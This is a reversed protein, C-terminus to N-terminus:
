FSLNTKILYGTNSSYVRHSSYAAFLDIELPLLYFFDLKIRVGGFGSVISPKPETVYSGNPRIGIILNKSTIYDAGAFLNVYKFYTPIFDWGDFVRFVKLELESRASALKSGFVGGYGILYSPHEFGSGTLLSNRGGGYLVGDRYKKGSQDLGDLLSYTGQFFQSLSKSWRLNLKASTSILNYSKFSENKQSSFSGSLSFGRYLSNLSNTNHRLSLRTGYSQIKRKYSLGQTISELLSDRQSSKRAFITNTVNIKGLSWRHGLSAGFSEATNVINNLGSQSLSKSYNANLFWKENFFQHTYSAFSTIPTKINQNSPVGLVYNMGLLVNHRGLPDNMGTNLGIFTLDNFILLNPVVYKPLLYKIGRYKSSNLVTKKNEKEERPLSISKSDVEGKKINTIKIRDLKSFTKLVTEKAQKNEYLVVKYESGDYNKCIYRTNNKNLLEHCLKPPNFSYFKRNKYVSFIRKMGQSDDSSAEYLSVTLDGDLNFDIKDIVRDFFKQKYKKLKKDYVILREADKGGYGEANKNPNYVFAAIDNNEAHGKFWNINRLKRSFKGCIKKETFYCRSTNKSLYKKRFEKFNEEFSKGTCKKLRHDILFPLTKSYKGFLCKISGQKRKEIHSLLYGGIWYAYGGFPYHRPKDLCLKGQCTNASKLLSVMKSRILPHHIRGEKTFESEAWTAVGESLWRPMFQSWKMTSGLFFRFFQRLGNTMELTLIHTYEHVLLIRLWDGTHSLSSYEHPPFDNLYITNRPFVSASGNAEGASESVVIHVSSRPMYDFYNHIKHFDSKIIRISNEAFVKKDVPFHLHITLKKDKFRVSIKETLYDESHVVGSLFLFTFFLAINKM